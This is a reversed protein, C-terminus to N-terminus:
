FKERKFNNRERFLSFFLLMASLIARPLLSFAFIWVGVIFIKLLMDLYIQDAFIWIGYPWSV